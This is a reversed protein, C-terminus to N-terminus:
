SEVGSAQSDATRHDLTHTFLVSPDLHERALRVIHEHHTFFIVQTHESLRALAKLAAVSREDDFMILIDDVIFPIPERQTLHTELLSLRLALYLQDCTGESMGNVGVTRQGDRRVGVLVAHGKDDYDARLGEFSGLTLEGFLESARQLVPGQCQERFREISKRLVAAALRLRVYQEADSRIRALLHEAQEQAEAAQGSGDMLEREKKERGVAESVETKKTELDAIEDDLQQVDAQLQDPDFQAVEAAWEDLPVGASSDGLQQNVIELGKEVERRRGSHEEAASLEAASVCGAQECMADIVALLQEVKSQAENRKTKETTIQEKWGELKTQAKGASELRDHLDAIAHEVPLEALDAALNALLREASESFEEADRDIGDIRGRLDGANKILTLLEDVSEIVSNAESPAADRDLGITAIAEAWDSQWQELDRKAEEAAQQVDPLQDRLKQLAKADDQYSQNAEDIQKVVSECWELTGGLTDDPQPLPQDLRELCQNLEARLSRILTTTDDFAAHQKRISRAVDSLATQQNLWSRMERPSLPDVDLPTWQDRWQSHLQQLSEQAASLLGAQEILEAALELRDATLKAKEAVRDAERRLRDGIADAAEVSAQFAQSLGGGSAFEDIFEVTSSEDDSKGDRWARQVLQWGAERRRRADTLDDETPVDQELRLKELSQDLKQTRQKLEDIRDTYRKVAAESDTLENEFRDITEVAPVSLQELQQLTGSFLRLKALDVEAQNKTERLAMGADALQHDLNGHKQTRRIVQKLGSADKIAPLADLQFELRELDNHLKHVAKEASGQKDLRAKCEGALSQIRGRQARSLRLQEAHELQPERGLDELIKRARQEADDLLAVLGPQDKAAKQYSGLGTHLQSIATRHELMGLPVNIKAVEADLRKLAKAADAAARQANDLETIAERRNGSFEDPLLPADAVETLQERLGNRRGILPIAKGIREFRSQQRRKDLLQQDIEKQQTEAVHLAKEHKVWESALLQLDKIRRRAAALESISKNIRQNSGRPKFLEDAEDALRKQVQGLDAVGAGAAFLIEGLDGGGQVVAEGGKRLEEYDIGFRQSFTAEDIGGMMDTLQIPDIVDADNPSRLTNTRGKRRMCELHEGTANELRGGIRMNPNAHLFNDSSNHPIGFLFQRLARLASTKGAENPGFVVHLGHQGKDFSLSADTFPGFALLDLQRIKM